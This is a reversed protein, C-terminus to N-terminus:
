CMGVTASFSRQLLTRASIGSANAFAARGRLVSCAAAIAVIMWFLSRKSSAAGDRNVNGRRRYYRMKFTDSISIGHFTLANQSRIFAGESNLGFQEEHALFSAIAASSDPLSEFSVHIHTHIPM